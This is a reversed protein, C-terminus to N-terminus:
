LDADQDRDVRAPDVNPQDRCKAPRKDDVAEFRDAEPLRDLTEERGDQGTTVLQIKYIM